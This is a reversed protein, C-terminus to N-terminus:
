SVYSLRPITFEIHGCHECKVTSQTAKPHGHWIAKSNCRHCSGTKEEADVLKMSKSKRSPDIWIKTLDIITKVEYQEELKKIVQQITGQIGTHVGPIKKVSKDEFWSPIGPGNGHAWWGRDKHETEKLRDRDGHNRIIALESDPSEFFEQEGNDGPHLTLTKM